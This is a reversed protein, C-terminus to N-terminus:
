ASNFDRGPYPATSWFHPVVWLVYLGAGLLAAALWARRLRFGTRPDAAAFRLVTLELALAYAPLLASDEKCNLALAWLLAMLLFSGRAPRGDIQARRARLYALLALVLFLTGLTQLRQVAYLVASVQLPHAAWALALLPAIWAARRAPIRAALLLSRYLWALAFATLAHIVINTTKFTSPDAMGGARWYDLAFTLTPLGRMSGSPQPTALIAYLRGPTPSSLHISANNVLNPIDDFVLAGPLGPLFLAGALLALCLSAMLFVRAASSRVPLPNM